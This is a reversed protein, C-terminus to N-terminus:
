LNVDEGRREVDYTLDNPDRGGRCRPWRILKKEGVMVMVHESSGSLMLFSALSSYATLLTMTTQAVGADLGGGRFYIAIVMYLFSRGVRYNPELVQLDPGLIRSGLYQVMLAMPIRYSLTIIHALESLWTIRM